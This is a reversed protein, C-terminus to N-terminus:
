MRKHLNSIFQYGSWAGLGLLGIGGILLVTGGLAGLVPLTSVATAAGVTTIVLGARRDEKTRSVALGALAVAGGIIPGVLPLSGLSSLVLMGIGGAIGGVAKVGQKAVTERPVIDGMTEGNTYEHGPWWDGM